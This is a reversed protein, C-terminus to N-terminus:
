DLGSKDSVLDFGGALPPKSKTRTNIVSEISNKIAFDHVNRM